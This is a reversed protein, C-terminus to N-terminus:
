SSAPLSIQLGILIRSQDSLHPLQVIRWYVLKCFKTLDRM